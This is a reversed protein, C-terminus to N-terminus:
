GGARALAGALRAEFLQLPIGAVAVRKNRGAAGSTLALSGLPVGLERALLSLVARNARGSVAPERVRLRLADGHAGVIGETSAGPQVHVRLVVGGKSIDFLGM